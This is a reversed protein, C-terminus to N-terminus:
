LSDLEMQFVTVILYFHYIQVDLLKDDM